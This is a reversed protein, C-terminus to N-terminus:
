SDIVSEHVIREEPGEAKSLSKLSEVQAVRGSRSSKLEDVLRSKPGVPRREPNARLGEAPEPDQAVRGSSTSLDLRLVLHSVGRPLRCSFM